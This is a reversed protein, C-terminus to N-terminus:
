SDHLYYREADVGRANNTVVLRAGNVVRFGGSLTYNGTVAGHRNLFELCERAVARTNYFDRSPRDSEYVLLVNTGESLKLCIKLIDRITRGTRRESM